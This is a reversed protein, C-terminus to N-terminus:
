GCVYIVAGGPALWRLCGAAAGRGLVRRWWQLAGAGMTRPAPRASISVGGGGLAARGPRAPRSFSGNRFDAPPRVPIAISRGADHPVYGRRDAPPGRGPSCGGVTRGRCRPIIDPQHTSAFAPLAPLLLSGAARYPVQRNVRDGPGRSLRKRYPTPAMLELPFIESRCLPSEPPPVRQQAM